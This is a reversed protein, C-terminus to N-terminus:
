PNKVKAGTQKENAVKERSATNDPYISKGMLVNMQIWALELGYRARASQLRADSFKVMADGLDTKVDLEYLGRSRDLYLDRYESLVRTEDVRAQLTYIQTWLELISQQISLEAQRLKARAQDLEALRTAIRAQTAGGTSLPVRFSLGARYRDRSGLDRTYASAELEGNIVPRKEARAEEVRLMAVRVEEQLQQLVPNNQLAQKQLDEVVEPMKQKVFHLRPNALNSPLMGPHNLLAALLSRKVRRKVDSAYRRTRSQQYRTQAELLVVDSVQGLRNRDRIRDYSVYATAMDENDRIYELDALVVDFYARIIDIRRKQLSDALALERSKVLADAADEKARTRGFDYLRKTVFLGLHHDDHQQTPDLPSPEVWRVRGQIDAQVGSGAEVFKKGAQAQSLSSRAIVVSPHSEDVLKLAYELTLPDPLAGPKVPEAAQVGPTVFLIVCSLFIASQVQQWPKIM